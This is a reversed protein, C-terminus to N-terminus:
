TTFRACGRRKVKAYLHELSTSRPVSGSPRDKYKQRVARISTPIFWVVHRFVSVRAEGREFLAAGDLEHAFDQAFGWVWLLLIDQVGHGAGAAYGDDSAVAGSLVPGGRPGYEPPEM